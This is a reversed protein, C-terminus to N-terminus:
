LVKISQNCTILPLYIPMNMFTIKKKPGQPFTIFTVITVEVMLAM